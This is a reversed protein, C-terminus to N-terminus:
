SMLTKCPFREPGKPWAVLTDPLPLSFNVRATRLNRQPYWVRQEVFSWRSGVFFAACDSARSESSAQLGQPRSHM